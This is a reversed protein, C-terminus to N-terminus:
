IHSNIMGIYLTITQPNKEGWQHWFIVDNTTKKERKQLIAM